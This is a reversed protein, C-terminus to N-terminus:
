PIEQFLLIIPVSRYSVGCLTTGFDIAIVLKYCLGDSLHRPRFMAEAPKEMGASIESKAVEMGVAETKVAKMEVVKAGRPQAEVRGVRELCKEQRPIEDTPKTSMPASLGYLSESPFENDYYSAEELEACSEELNKPLYYAVGPLRKSFTLVMSRIFEPPKGSETTHIDYHILFQAILDSPTRRNEKFRFSISYFTVYRCRSGVPPFISADLHGPATAM